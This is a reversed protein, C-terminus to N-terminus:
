PISGFYRCDGAFDEIRESLKRGFELMKRRRWKWVLRQDNFQKVIEQFDDIGAVEAALEDFRRVDFMM